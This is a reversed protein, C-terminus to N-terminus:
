ADNLDSSASRLSCGFGEYHSPNDCRTHFGKYHRRAGQVGHANFGACCNFGSHTIGRVIGRTNIDGRAPPPVTLGNM